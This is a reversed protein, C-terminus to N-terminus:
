QKDPGRHSLELLLRKAKERGTASAAWDFCTVAMRPTARTARLGCALAVLRARLARAVDYSTAQPLGLDLLILDVHSQLALTLASVGDHAGKVEFGCHELLLATSTVTDEDGDVVLARPPSNAAASVEM